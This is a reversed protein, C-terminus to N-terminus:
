EPKFTNRFATYLFEGLLRNGEVNLHGNGGFRYEPKLIEESCQFNIGNQNCFDRLQQNDSSESDFSVLLFNNGYTEKFKLLSLTLTLPMISSGDELQEEAPKVEAKGANGSGKRLLNLFASNKIALEAVRNRTSVNLPKGFNDPIEFSIKDGYDQLWDPHFGEIVLVVKDPSYIKSFYHCRYWAAYPDLRSEGLNIIQYDPQSSSQLCHQFISSAISDRSVQLAEIYSSGLLFIPRRTDSIIVDSGPFGLNNRYYKRNGGEVSWGVSYPEYLLIHKFHVDGPLFMYQKRDPAVPYGVVFRITIEVFLLATVIAAIIILIKRTAM